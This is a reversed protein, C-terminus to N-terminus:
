PRYHAWAGRYCMVLWAGHADAGLATTGDPVNCSAGTNKPGPMQVDPMPAWQNGACLIMEHVTDATNNSIRSPDSCPQGLTDAHAPMALPVSAGALVCLTAATALLRQIMFHNGWLHDTTTM